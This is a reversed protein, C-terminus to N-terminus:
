CVTPPHWISNSIQLPQLQVASIPQNLGVSAFVNLKFESAPSYEKQFSSMVDEASKTGKTTQDPHFLEKEYSHLSAVWGTEKIDSYVTVVYDDGSKEVSVIDYMENNLSFEKGRETWKLSSYDSASLILQQTTAKKDVICEKAGDKAYLIGLSYMLRYGVTYHLMAFLMVMATARVYISFGLKM